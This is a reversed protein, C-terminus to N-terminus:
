VGQAQSGPGGDADGWAARSGKLCFGLLTLTM